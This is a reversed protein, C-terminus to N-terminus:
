NKAKVTRGHKLKWEVLKGAAIEIADARRFLKRQVPGVIAYHRIGDLHEPIQWLDKTSTRWTLQNFQGLNMPQSYDYLTKKGNDMFYEHFYSLALERITKYVPERYRLVAHNTKSIAGWYGRVKFPAVVHDFDLPERARLDLVLPAHGHFELACAALMAGEMCHAKGTQLVRRPSMCTEGGQEFNIKLTELFDQIKQPSSLKRFLARENSSFESM